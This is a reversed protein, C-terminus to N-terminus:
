ARRKKTETHEYGGIVANGTVQGRFILNVMRVENYQGQQCWGRTLTCMKQPRLNYVKYSFTNQIDQEGVKICVFMCM